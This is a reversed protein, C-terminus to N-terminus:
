RQGLEIWGPVAGTTADAPRGVLLMWPGLLAGIPIIMTGVVWIRGSDHWEYADM